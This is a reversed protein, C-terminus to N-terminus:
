VTPSEPNIGPDTGSSWTWRNSKEVNVNSSIGGAINDNTPKRRVKKVSEEETMKDVFLMIPLKIIEGAASECLGSKERDDVKTYVEGGYRFKEGKNLTTLRQM